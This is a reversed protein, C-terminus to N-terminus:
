DTADKVDAALREAWARIGAPSLKENRRKAAREALELTEPSVLSVSQLLARRLIGQEASSLIYPKM